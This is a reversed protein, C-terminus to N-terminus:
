QLIRDCIGHKVLIAIVINVLPILLAIVDM